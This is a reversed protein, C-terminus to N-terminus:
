VEPRWEPLVGMLRRREEDSPEAGSLIRHLREQGISTLHSVEAVTLGHRMMAVGLDAVVRDGPHDYPAPREALLDMLEGLAASLAAVDASQQRVTVALRSVLPAAVQLRDAVRERFSAPTV